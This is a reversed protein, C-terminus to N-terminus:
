EPFRQIVKLTDDLSITNNIIEESLVALGEYDGNTAAADLVIGLSRNNAMVPQGPFLVHRSVILALYRKHGGRYHLRAAIEQGPYCGKDFSVAGLHELGLAPPLFTEDAPPLTPWGARIEALRFAQEANYDSQGPSTTLWLSRDGYGLGIDGAQDTRLEGLPLAAGAMAHLDHLPKLEVRARLVYRQLASCLPQPDGSRLLALLRGNGPDVLHMLARVQGRADLWTNWQWHGPELKRLDGSFQAQAFVRADAGAIEICQAAGLATRTEPSDDIATSM